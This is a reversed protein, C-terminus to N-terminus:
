PTIPTKLIGIAVCREIERRYFFASTVQGMAMDSLHGAPFSIQYARGARALHSLTQHKYPLHLAKKFFAWSLRVYFM